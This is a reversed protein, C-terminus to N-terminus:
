GFKILNDDHSIDGSDTQYKKRDEEDIIEQDVENDNNENDVIQNYMSEIPLGSPPESRKSITKQLQPTKVHSMPFHWVTALEEINLIFPNSGTKIKRKKYAKILLGKRRASKKLKGFYSVTTTFKPVISNASPINFQQIAGLLANVGREPKFVENRALYVGRMKTKFGIKSIKEEMAELIKTQGPTLFRLQNPDTSKKEEAGGETRITGFVQASIEEWSKGVEKEFPIGVGGSKKKLSADGILEKIKKIADEKWSNSIPEIIMQFWMQEGAGIRSFSELFTGMPDKLVTDKSINHEFERYTRIPFSTDEALTFDGVWVDYESNPYIEPAVDIYDEVETIDADPYQAYVSAEVLDRFSEETRILFQIYGEISIIEFSFWKQRYGLRFAKEINTSSFAGALHSFLQEVAKPTQINELPVDVALLVWKWKRMFKEGKTDKWYYIAVFLFLYVILLWGFIIIIDFIVAGSSRSFFQSIINLNIYFPGIFM